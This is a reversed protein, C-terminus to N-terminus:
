RKRGVPRCAGRRPLEGRGPHPGIARERRLTSRAGYRPSLHPVLPRSGRAFSEPEPAERGDPGVYRDRDQADVAFTKKHIRVGVTTHYRDSFISNVFRETISSKGVSYNGLMCVKKQM